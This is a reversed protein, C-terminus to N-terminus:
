LEIDRLQGIKEKLPLRRLYFLSVSETPLRKQNEYNVFHRVDPAQKAGSEISQVAVRSHNIAKRAAVLVPALRAPRTLLVPRLARRTGPEM